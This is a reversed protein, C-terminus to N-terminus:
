QQGVNTMLNAMLGNIELKGKPQSSAKVQTTKWYWPQHIHALKKVRTKTVEDFRINVKNFQTKVEEMLQQLLMYEKSHLMGLFM